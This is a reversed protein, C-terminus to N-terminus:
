SFEEREFLLLGGIATIVLYGLMIVIGEVVGPTYVTSTVTRPGMRATMQTVTPSLGWNVTTAFVNGITSSAYSIVMWPEIKVLGVILDEILTFGFLFLVATFLFGYASTKFLSSFLFTAGLVAGLYVLALVLSLGLQWPLLGTGFYYAGNGLLIALFLLMLSVTALFAAIFKGAYVTSRRVPLGMLFYGTKNQFEGAIADGGFFIAALVIVFAVGGGWFTGYFALNSSVLSGRFHAVIATLIAGIAGVIAILAVYRRGRLYERLQYRTLKTVQVWSGPASRPALVAEAGPTAM